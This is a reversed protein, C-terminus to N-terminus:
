ENQMRESDTQEFRVKEIMFNALAYVDASYFNKESCGSETCVDTSIISNLLHFTEVLQLGTLGYLKWM